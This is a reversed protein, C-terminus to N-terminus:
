PALSLRGLSTVWSGGTQFARIEYMEGNGFFASAKKSFMFPPLLTLATNTYGKVFMCFRRQPMGQYVVNQVHQVRNFGEGEAMKCKPQCLMGFITVCTCLWQGNGGVVHEMAHSTSTQVTALSYVITSWYLWQWLHDMPKPRLDWHDVIGMLSFVLWKNVVAKETTNQYCKSIEETGKTSWTCKELAQLLNQLKALTHLRSVVLAADNEELFDIEKKQYKLEFVGALSLLPVHQCSLQNQQADKFIITM